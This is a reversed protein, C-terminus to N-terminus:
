HGVAHGNLLTSTSEQTFGDCSVKPNWDVFTGHPNNKWAWVHLEYFAALGYRNPADTHHFLQGALVPPAVNSAGHWAAVDVIYEVGLLRLRGNQMEYMLAEPQAADIAPEKLLEFNILHLGMAGEQPGSVCGLIPAYGASLAQEVDKFRETAERVERVLGAPVQGHDDQNQDRAEPAGSFIVASFLAVTVTLAFFTIQM